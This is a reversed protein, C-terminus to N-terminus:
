GLVGPLSRLVPTAIPCLRPELGGTSTEWPLKMALEARKPWTSPSPATYQCRLLGRSMHGWTSPPM